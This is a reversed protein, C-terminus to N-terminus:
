PLLLFCLYFADGPPHNLHEVPNSQVWIFLILEKDVLVGAEAPTKKNSLAPSSSTHFFHLV